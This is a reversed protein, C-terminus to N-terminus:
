SFPTQIGLADGQHAHDPGDSDARMKFFVRATNSELLCVSVLEWGKEGEANLKSEAISLDRLVLSRYKWRQM